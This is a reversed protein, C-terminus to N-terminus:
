DARQALKLNIKEITKQNAQIRKVLKIRQAGEPMPDPADKKSDSQYELQNQSKYVSNQLNKKMKALAEPDDPLKVEKKSEPLPFLVQMDPMTGTTFYAEKAAYLKEIQMSCNSIMDSLEKRKAVSEPTNDEPVKSMQKHYDSRVGLLRSHEKLVKEIEPPYTKSPQSGAESEGSVANAIKGTFETIHEASKVSADAIKNIASETNNKDDAEPDANGGESSGEPNQSGTGAETGDGTSTTEGTKGTSEPDDGTDTTKGGEGTDEPNQDGSDAEPLEPM